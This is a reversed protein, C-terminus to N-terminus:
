RTDATDNENKKRRKKEKEASSEESSAPRLKCNMRMTNKLFRTFLDLFHEYMEEGLVEDATRQIRRLAKQYEKRSAIAANEEEWEAAESDNESDTVCQTIGRRMILKSSRIAIRRGKVETTKCQKCYCFRWRNEQFYCVVDTNRAELRAVGTEVDVCAKAM